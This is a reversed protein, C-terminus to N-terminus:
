QEIPTSGDGRLNAAMQRQLYAQYGFLAKFRQDALWQADQWVKKYDPSSPNKAATDVAEAFQEQIDAVQQQEHASLPRESPGPDSFAAPIQVVGEPAMIDTTPATADGSAARSASEGSASTGSFGATSAGDGTAGARSRAGSVGSLAARSATGAGRGHLSANESRGSDVVSGGVVPAEQPGASTGQFVTAGPAASVTAGPMISASANALPAALIPMEGNLAPEVKSSIKARAESTVGDARSTVLRAVTGEPCGLARLHAAFATPNEPELDSWRTIGAAPSAAQSAPAVAAVDARRQGLIVVDLALSVAALVFGAVGLARLFLRASSTLRPFNM